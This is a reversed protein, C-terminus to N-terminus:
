AHGDGETTWRALEGAPYLEWASANEDMTPMLYLFAWGNHLRDWILQRADNEHPALVTVWGDPDPEFDIRGAIFSPHYERRYRQGFTVRFETLEGM